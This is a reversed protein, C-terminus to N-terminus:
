NLLIFLSMIIIVTKVPIIIKSFGNGIFWKDRLDFKNFIMLFGSGLIMIIIIFGIIFSCGSIDVESKFNVNYYKMIVRISLPLSFITYITLLHIFAIWNKPKFISLSVNIIFYLLVLVSMYKPLVLIHVGSNLQSLNKIYINFIVTYIIIFSVLIIIRPIIKNKLIEFRSLPMSLMYEFGNDKFERSFMNKGLVDALIFVIFAFIFFYSINGNGYGLHSKGGTGSSEIFFSFKTYHILPMIILFSLIILIQKYIDKFEKYIM